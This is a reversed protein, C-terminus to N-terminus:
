RRANNRRHAADVPGSAANEVNLIGATIAKRAEYAIPDAVVGM